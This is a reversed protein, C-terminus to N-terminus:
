FLEELAALKEDIEQIKAATKQAVLEDVMEQVAEDSYMLLAKDDAKLDDARIIYM